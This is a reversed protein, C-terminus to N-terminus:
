KKKEKMANKAEKYIAYAKEKQANNMTVCAFVAMEVLQVLEDISYAYSDKFEKAYENPTLSDKTKLRNYIMAIAQNENVRSLKLKFLMEKIGPGIIFNILLFVVVILSVVAFALLIKFALSFLFATIGSFANQPERAYIAANTPEYTVFGLNQIYVEPYAHASRTRIIYEGEYEESPVFGEVYRVILGLSRAMLVYATAYDSCTGTKSEFLFYEVSDDPANYGLDYTFGAEYFYEQLAIAKEWDYECDKTIELALDKVKQPIADVNEKYANAYAQAKENENIFSEVVYASAKEDNEMLIDYLENLMQNSEKTTFNAGGLSIWNNKTEYDDVYELDYNFYEPLMTAYIMVDSKNIRTGKLINENGKLMYLRKTDATSLFTESKFNLSDIYLRDRIEISYKSAVKDLKYRSIFSSDYKDATRIAEALDNVSNLKSDLQWTNYEISPETYEKIGYWRDNAFDYMDFSQRKLYFLLGSGRKTTIKYLKRNNINNFNDANGSYQSMESYSEPLTVSINGGMFANEFVYYYKTNQQKPIASAIVAFAVAYLLVSMIGKVYGEIRKGADNFSRIHLMFSVMNLVVVVAVSFVSIDRMVKVSFIFPIFSVLMLFSTRYLANTFYYVVLAFFTTFVMLIAMLYETSNDVVDAGSMFWQGFQMYDKFVIRAFINLITMTAIAIIMGGVLKHKQVFRCFVFLLACWFAQILTWYSLIEIHFVSFMIVSLSMTLLYPMVLSSWKNKPKKQETKDIPVYLDADDAISYITTNQSKGEQQLIYYVDEYYNPTAYISVEESMQPVRPVMVNTSYSYRALMIRVNELDKEDNVSYEEFSNKMYAYFNVTYNHRLLVLMIGLANEIAAEKIYKSAKDNAGIYISDLVVNIGNSNMEDDLRVLLKNRKASQKWNIRKIPDGPVYERNDYGPFGGFSIGQVEITDESDDTNLSMQMTKLIRDDKPSVNAIDPIVAIEKKLKNLAARKAKFSFLGLYDTVKVAKIGATGLGSIKADYKVFFEHTGRPLVSVIVAKNACSFGEEEFMQLEIPTTPLISKNKLKVYMDFSQHKSLMEHAIDIEVEVFFTSIWAFFVSLVPALILAFLLFWGVNANLYLAFIIAFAITAIYNIIGKYVSVRKM